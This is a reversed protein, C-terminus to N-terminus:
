FNKWGEGNGVYGKRLIKTGATVKDCIAVFVM